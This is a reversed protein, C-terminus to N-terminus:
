KLERFCSILKSIEEIPNFKIVEDRFHSSLEKVYQKDALKLIGRYISEKDYPDAYIGAKGAVEPLSSNDSVLVPCGYSLAELPPIGFGEYYSLYILGSSRRYFDVLKDEDVYGTFVIQNEMKFYSVKDLISQYLWGYSGIIFLKTSRGSEKIFRHFSEIVSELNKGPQITSVAIFFDERIEPNYTETVTIEMFNHVIIIKKEPINLFRVIDNKSNQSVTIVRSSSRASLKSIINFYQRQFFPYKKPFVFPILDHITTVKRIKYMPLVPLSVSPSYFIGHSIRFPLVLQEFIIRVIVKKIYSFRHIRFNSATIEFFSHPDVIKGSTLLIFESESDLLQLQKLLRKTFYGTGSLREDFMLMNVFVRM